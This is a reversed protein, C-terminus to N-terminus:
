GRWGRGGGQERDTDRMRVREVGEGRGARQRDRM